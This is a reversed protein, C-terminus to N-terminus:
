FVLSPHSCKGLRLEYNHRWIAVIVVIGTTATTFRILYESNKKPIKQFKRSNSQFKWLANQVGGGKDARPRINALRRWHCQSNYAARAQADQAILQRIRNRNTIILNRVKLLAVNNAM